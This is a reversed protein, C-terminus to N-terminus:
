FDIHWDWNRQDAGTKKLVVCHSNIGLKYDDNKVDDSLYKRYWKPLIKLALTVKRGLPVKIENKPYNKYVTYNPFRSIYRLLKRIGPFTVDDFVIVGGTELIKDLFFFDVLLWDFQKTSDIYAFDFNRGQELLKPLATYCYQEIFEIDKSYGAQEILDLGVGNWQTNEYIDIVTHSGGNKVVSETIALASVGYAFGIEISRKFHNEEIIKQLFSCQGASTESHIKVPENKTTTFQGTEFLNELLPHM